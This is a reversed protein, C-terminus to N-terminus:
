FVDTYYKELNEYLRRWAYRYGEEIIELIRKKAVPVRLIAPDENLVDIENRVCQLEKTLFSAAEGKDDFTSVVLEPYSNGNGKALMIATQKIRSEFGIKINEVIVPFKEHNKHCREYTEDNELYEQFYKKGLDEMPTGQNFEMAAQFIIDIQAITKTRVNDRAFYRFVFKELSSMIAGWLGKKRSRAMYEDVFDFGIDMEEILSERIISIKDNVELQANM